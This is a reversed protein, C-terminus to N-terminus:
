SGVGWLKKFEARFDAPGYWTGADAKLDLSKINSEDFLRYPAEELPVDGHTLARLAADVAGWGDWVTPNGVDIIKEGAAMSQLPALNGNTGALWIRDAAGASKIAPLALSIQFEADPYVLNIKPNRAAKQAATTVSQVLNDVTLTSVDVTCTGPCYTAIEKKLGNLQDVSYPYGGPIQLYAAHLNGNTKLIMQDALVQGACTFCYSSNALINMDRKQDDPLYTADGNISAIVPIGAAKAAKLSKAITEPNTTGLVIAAVRQSVAADLNQVLQPTSNGPDVINAKLGAAEAGERIGDALQKQFPDSQSAVVAFITKGKLSSVDIAPGPPKWQVQQRAAEIKKTLENKQSQTLGSGSTSGGASGSSGTATSSAGGGGSHAASGSSSCAAVLLSMSIAFAGAAILHRGRRLRMHM